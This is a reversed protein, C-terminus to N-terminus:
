QFARSCSTWGSYRKRYVQHVHPGCCFLLICSGRGYTKSTISLIFSGSTTVLRAITFSLWTDHLHVHSCRAGLVTLANQRSRQSNLHPWTSRLLPCDRFYACLRCAGVLDLIEHQLSSFLSLLATKFRVCLWRLACLNFVSNSNAAVVACSVATVITKNM